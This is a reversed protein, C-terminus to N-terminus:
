LREFSLIDMGAAPPTVLAGCRSMRVALVNAAGSHLM